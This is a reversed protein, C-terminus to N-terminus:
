AGNSTSHALMGSAVLIVGVITMVVLYGWDIWPLFRFISQMRTVINNTQEGAIAAHIAIHHCVPVVIGLFLSALGLGIRQHNM